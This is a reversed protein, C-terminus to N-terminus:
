AHTQKEGTMAALRARLEYKLIKTAGMPWADVFHVARPVKFSAIEGRCFEIIDDSTAEADPALEVFAVPVEGYKADPRGVVQSAM